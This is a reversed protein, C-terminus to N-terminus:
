RIWHGIFGRQAVMEGRQSPRLPGRHFDTLNPCLTLDAVCYLTMPRQTGRSCLLKPIIESKEAEENIMPEVSWIKVKNDSIYDM